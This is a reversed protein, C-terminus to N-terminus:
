VLSGFRKKYYSQLNENKVGQLKNKINIIIILFINKDVNTKQLFLKKDHTTFHKNLKRKKVGSFFDKKELFITSM